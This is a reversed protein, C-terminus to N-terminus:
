QKTLDDLTSFHKVVQECRKQIAAVMNYNIRKDNIQRLGITIWFLHSLVRGLEIYIHHDKKTNKFCYSRKLSGFYSSIVKEKLTDNMEWEDRIDFSTQSTKTSWENLFNGIDYGIYNFQSLEFDLLYANKNEEILFNNLCLDNHSLVWETDALIKQLRNMMYQSGFTRNISEQCQKLLEPCDLQKRKYTKLFTSRMENIHFRRRVQNTQNYELVFEKYSCSYQTLIRIMKLTAWEPLTERTFSTSNVFREIRYSGSEFLVEPYYREPSLRTVLKAELTTDAFEPFERHYMKILIDDGAGVDVKYVDNTLSEL